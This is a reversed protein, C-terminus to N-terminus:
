ITERQEIYVRTHRTVYEYALSKLLLYAQIAIAPSLNIM